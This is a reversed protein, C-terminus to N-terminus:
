VNATFSPDFAANLETPHYGRPNCVVRTRGIQYDCSDHSHGHVWLEPQTREIISILEVCFAPNLPDGLFREAISQRSPLYHTAVVTPGAFKTTLERELYVRSVEHLAVADSPQFGRSREGEAWHIDHFDNMMMRAVEMSHRQVDGDGNLRFDTWLTAGIFRVGAIVVSDNELFHCGIQSASKRCAALTDHYEAGYYEHNGALIVTSEPTFYEKAWWIGQDYKSIDGALVVVDADVSPPTWEGFELHLDSLILIRISSRGM